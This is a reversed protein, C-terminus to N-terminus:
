SADPGAPTDAVIIGLTEALVAAMDMLQASTVTAGRLSVTDTVIGLEADRLDVRDLTMRAFTTKALRSRPFATSTLTAGTFDVERLLCDDFTVESLVADRFNVSDLKCGHFTVRRLRAGFAEVGAAASAVLAADTWDTEALSTGTLRVDRLWVDTLRSRQLGGGHFSVRTFACELFRSNAANAGDFAAQDVHVCDYDGDPQLGGTYPRLAAAFPLDALELWPM